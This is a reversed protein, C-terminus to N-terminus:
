LLKGTDSEGSVYPAKVEGVGLRKYRKVLPKKQVVLIYYTKQPDEKKDKRMGVIVCHKFQTDAGMDFWLSGVKGLNAFITHEKEEQKMRCNKFQRVKVILVKQDTDFQLDKSDPVM